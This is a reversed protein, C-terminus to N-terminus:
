TGNRRSRIRKIGRKDLVNRVAQPSLAFRRAVEAVSEHRQYMACVADAQLRMMQDRNPFGDERAIQSVRHASLGVDTAIQSFTEGNWAREAIEDRLALTTVLQSM